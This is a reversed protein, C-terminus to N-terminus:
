FGTRLGSIYQPDSLTHFDCCLILMHYGIISDKVIWTLDSKEFTGMEWVLILSLDPINLTSVNLM